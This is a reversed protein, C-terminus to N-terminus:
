PTSGCFSRGVVSLLKHSLLQCPWSCWWGKQSANLPNQGAHLNYLRVQGSLVLIVLKLLGEM